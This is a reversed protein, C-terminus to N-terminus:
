GTSRSSSRRRRPEPAAAPKFRFVSLERFGYSLVIEAGGDIYGYLGDKAYRDPPGTRKWGEIGDVARMVPPNAAAGAANISNGVLVAEQGTCAASSIVIAATALVLASLGPRLRM